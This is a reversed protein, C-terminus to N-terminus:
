GPKWEKQERSREEMEVHNGFIEVVLNGAKTTNPAVVVPDLVIRVDLVKHNVVYVTDAEVRNSVEVLDTVSEIFSARANVTGVSGFVLLKFFADVLDM